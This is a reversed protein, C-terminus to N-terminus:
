RLPQRGDAAGSLGASMLFPDIAAFVPVQGDELTLTCNADTGWM